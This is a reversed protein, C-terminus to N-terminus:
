SRMLARGWKNLTRPEQPWDIVDRDFIVELEASIEIWNEDKDKIFAFLNNGPGHRGPGWVIEIGLRAFHDCWDRILNWEGVEYSHHDVGQFESQFCALTHHEHNSTLFATALGGDNHLVRDVLRFGLTGQYFDVIKQVDLTALTLHQTSGNLGSLKRNEPKAIGCCVLNGDPDRMAFAGTDFYPSPSEVLGFGDAELRKRLGALDNSSEYAFGAYALRKNEGRLIIIRRSPGECRFEGTIESALDMQMASAYFEALRLPDSSEFAVHHLHAASQLDFHM